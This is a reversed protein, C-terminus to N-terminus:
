PHHVPKPAGAGSVQPAEKAILTREDLRLLTVGQDMIYRCEARKTSGVNNWVLTVYTMHDSNSESPTYPHAGASEKVAESCKSLALNSLMSSTQLFAGQVKEQQTERTTGVIVFGVIMIGLFAIGVKVFQSEM